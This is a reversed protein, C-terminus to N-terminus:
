LSDYHLLTGRLLFIMTEYSGTFEKGETKHLDAASYCPATGTAATCVQQFDVVTYNAREYYCMNYDHLFM